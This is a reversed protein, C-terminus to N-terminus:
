WSAFSEFAFGKLYETEPITAIIPHDRRQSYSEIMRLQRKADVAADAVVNMLDERGLHHSCCFTVLIGERELIKLSRFHIEKYGRLADKVNRKSRTFSPPDLIIMDFSEGTKEAAKLFDFVNAEVFDVELGSVRANDRGTAAADASSEVATVTAAGAAKCSLGFGGQNAFGDLVRRDGALAAVRGYNEWQDLYLGTKQGGCLDARLTIGGARVPFPAPTEGHLTGTVPELGEPVRIPSDNREIITRPRLADVLAEVIMTKRLDMALTNTQLVLHDGYRDVIVGPLGDSESWILRAFDPPDLALRERLKRARDIRRAFFDPDLDQSRRSFRRAVIQSAPNYIASGLPRDRYDKLSVVDGPRPDGFTKKIESAYVWDHGHFLRARPNVILGPM